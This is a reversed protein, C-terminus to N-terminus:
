CSAPAISIIVGDRMCIHEIAQETVHLTYRYLLRTLSSVVAVRSWVYWNV